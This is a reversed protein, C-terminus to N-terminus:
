IGPIFSDGNLYRRIWDMTMMTSHQKIQDRTGPFLYRKSITNEKSSLGIHVTGVPKEKSGGDPGAIGTVSLGLDSQFIRRAGEAMECATPDSVAGHNELTKESVNLLDVKAKNSYVIVSGLFYRSSGPVDTLLNGIRGGTCSEAFAVTKKKKILMSGVIEEMKQEDRGFLCPGALNFLELDLIDTIESPIGDKINRIDIMVHLEPFHDYIQWTLDKEKFSLKKLIGKLSSKDVGFFKYIERNM